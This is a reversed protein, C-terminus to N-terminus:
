WTLSSEDTLLDSVLLALAQVNILRPAMLVRPNNLATRVALLFPVAFQSGAIPDNDHQTSNESGLALLIITNFCVAWAEDSPKFPRSYIQEVNSLFSSHVFLDTTYDSRQFFETHAMLLFQKPPLRIPMHDSQHDFPEELGAELCLRTLLGQVAEDNNAMRQRKQSNQSEDDPRPLDRKRQELLVLDRFENCLAVLSCPGHYRDILDGESRVTYRDTQNRLLMDESPRGDAPSQASSEEGFPSQCPRTKLM